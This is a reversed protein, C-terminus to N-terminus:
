KAACPQTNCDEVAPMEGPCASNSAPSEDDIRICRVDRTRTGTLFFFRYFRSSKGRMRLNKKQLSFHPRKLLFKPAAETPPIIPHNTKLYHLKAVM